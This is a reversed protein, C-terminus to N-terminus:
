KIKMDNKWACNYQATTYKRRTQTHTQIHAQIHTQKRSLKLLKTRIDKM